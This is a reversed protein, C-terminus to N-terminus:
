INAITCGIIGSVSYLRCIWPSSDMKRGQRIRRKRRKWSWDRVSSWNVLSLPPQEKIQVTWIWLKDTTKEAQKHVSIAAPPMCCAHWLGYWIVMVWYCSFILSNDVHGILKFVYLFSIRYPKLHFMKMCFIVTESYQHWFSIWICVNSINSLSIRKLSSIYCYWVHRVGAWFSM